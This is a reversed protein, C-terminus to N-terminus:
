RRRRSTLLMSLGVLVLLGPGILLTWSGGDFYSDVNMITVIILLLPVAVKAVRQTRTAAIAPYTSAEALALAHHGPEGLDDSPHIAASAAVHSRAEAVLDRTRALPFRYRGRLLGGLRRYWAAASRSRGRRRQRRPRDPLVLAAALLGLGVLALVVGPLRAVAQQGGQGTLVMAASVGLAITAAVGAWSTAPLGARRLWAVAAAAISTLAILASGILDSASMAVSWRWELVTYLAGILALLGLPILAYTLLGPDADADTDARQAVSLQSAVQRAHEGPTGFLEQAAVGADAAAAEVEALARDVVDRSLGREHVAELRFRDAWLQEPWNQMAEDVGRAARM